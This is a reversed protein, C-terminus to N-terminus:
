RRNPSRGRFRTSPMEQFSTSTEGNGFVPDTFLGANRFADTFRSHEIRDRPSQFNCQAPPVGAWVPLKANTVFARTADRNVVANFRRLIETILGNWQNIQGTSVPLIKRLVAFSM